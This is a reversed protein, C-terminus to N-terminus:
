RDIRSCILERVSMLGEKKNYEHWVTGVAQKRLDGPSEFRLVVGARELEPLVKDLAHSFRYTRRHIERRGVRDIVINSSVLTIGAAVKMSPEPAACDTLLKVVGVSASKKSKNL